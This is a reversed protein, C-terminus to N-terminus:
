VKLPTDPFRAADLDAAAYDDALLGDWSHSEHKRRAVLPGIHSDAYGDAGRFDSGGLSLRARALAKICDFGGPRLAASGSRGPLSVPESYARPVAAAPASTSRKM